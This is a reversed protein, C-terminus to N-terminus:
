SEGGKKINIRLELTVEADGIFDNAQANFLETENFEWERIAFQVGGMYGAIRESIDEIFDRQPKGQANFEGRNSEKIDKM